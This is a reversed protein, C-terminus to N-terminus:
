KGGKVFLDDISLSEPDKKNDDTGIDPTSPNGGGVSFFRHKYRKKWTEDLEKYKREWEGDSQSGRQELANYTDAMDEFFAIGTDSTDDGVREHLRSFFDEKSLVAM